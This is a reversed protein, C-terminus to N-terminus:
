PNGIQGRVTQLLAELEATMPEPEPTTIAHIGTSYRLYYPSDHIESLQTVWTPVTPSIAALDEEVCMEWLLCLNHRVNQVKLREDDGSKSLYAKLACELTHAAALALTLESLPAANALVRVGGIMNEAVDLYTYPPRSPPM